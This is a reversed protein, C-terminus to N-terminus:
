NDAMIDTRLLVIYDEAVNGNRWQTQLYRLSIYYLSQDGGVFFLPLDHPPSSASPGDAEKGCPSAIFEVLAPEILMSGDLM